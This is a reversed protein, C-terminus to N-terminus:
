EKFIENIEYEDQTIIKLTDFYLVRRKIINMHFECRAYSGFIMKYYVIDGQCESSDSICRKM